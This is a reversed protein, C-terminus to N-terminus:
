NFGQRRSRGRLDNAAPEGPPRVDGKPAASGGGGGGADSLGGQYRIRDQLARKADASLPTDPKGAYHGVGKFTLNRDQEEDQCAALALGAALAAVLM